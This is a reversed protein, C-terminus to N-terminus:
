KPLAWGRVLELTSSPIATVAGATGAGAAEPAAWIGPVDAGAAPLAETGAAGATGADPAACIGVFYPSKAAKKSLATCSKLTFESDTQFAFFVALNRM